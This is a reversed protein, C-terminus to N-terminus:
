SVPVTSETEYGHAVHRASLVDGGSLLQHLHDVIEPHSEMAQHFLGSTLWLTTVNNSDVFRAFEDLNPLYPPFIVLKSGNLLSGWIEFTSADFALPAFQLFVEKADFDIYNTNRVLRVVARHPICCGKPVGKSGSTYMVYALNESRVLAALNEKSKGIYLAENDIFVVNGDFSPLDRM